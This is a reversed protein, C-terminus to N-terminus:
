KAAVKSALSATAKDAPKAEGIAAELDLQSTDIWGTAWVYVNGSKNVKVEKTAIHLTIAEQPVKLKLSKGVLDQRTRKQFVLNTGIVLADAPRKSSRLVENQAELSENRATIEALAKELEAKTMGTSKSM